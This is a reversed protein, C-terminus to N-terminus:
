RTRTWGAAREAAARVPDGVAIGGAAALRNVRSVVGNAWADGADGIRASTHAYAAAPIGHRELRALGATGADEKGHGADNFFALRPQGRAAYEGSNAGGHSASIVVQGQDEPQIETISDM